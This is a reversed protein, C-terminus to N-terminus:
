RESEKPSYGCNPCYAVPHEVCEMRNIFWCSVKLGHKTETCILGSPTICSPMEKKPIGPDELERWWQWESFDIKDREELISKEGNSVWLLYKGDIPILESSEIWESV